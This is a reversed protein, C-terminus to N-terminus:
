KPVFDSCDTGNFDTVDLLWVAGDIDKDVTLSCIMLRTAPDDPREYIDM